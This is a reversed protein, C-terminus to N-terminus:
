SGALVEALVDPVNTCIGHIGLSRLARMREPDDVTWANVEVGADSCAAVLQEDVLPHWPHLTRHGHRVLRDVGRFPDPLDMVLWATSMAPDLEIVRDLTPLHFCSVLVRDAGGRDALLGVVRDALASTGDFDVDGPWNKIEINVGLGSCADLADALFPVHAPLDRAQLEVIARGDSLHADHHVALAGDATRRVDLEVWDAALTRAHRFAEITNEQRAKSAGRHAINRV